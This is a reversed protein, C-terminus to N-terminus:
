RSHYRGKDTMIYSGFRSRLSINPLYLLAHRRLFSSRLSALIQAVGLGRLFVPSGDRGIERLGLLLFLPKASRAERRNKAAEGQASVELAVLPLPYAAALPSTQTKM